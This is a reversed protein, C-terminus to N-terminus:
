PSIHRMEGMLTAQMEAANQLTPQAYVVFNVKRVGSKPNIDRYYDRIGQITGSLSEAVSMGCVGTGMAPFAVSKLHEADAVALSSSVALRVVEEDCPAGGGTRMNNVHIIRKIGRDKLKGSTTATAFGLPVGVLDSDQDKVGHGVAVTAKANREAEEFTAMGAKRAIANQVGSLMGAYEFGPNAPTVIAEANAETIDGLTIGFEVKGGAVEVSTKVVEATKDANQKIVIESGSEAM